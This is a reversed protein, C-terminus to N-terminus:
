AKKTKDNTKMIKRRQICSKMVKEEGKKKIREFNESKIEQTKQIKESLRERVWNQKRLARMRSKREM